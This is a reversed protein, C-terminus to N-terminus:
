ATIVGARLVDLPDALCPTAQLTHDWEVIGHPKQVAAGTGVPAIAGSSVQSAHHSFKHPRTLVDVADDVTAIQTESTHM